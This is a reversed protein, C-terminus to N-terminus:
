ETGSCSRITEEIDHRIVYLTTIGKQDFTAVVRRTECKKQKSSHCNRMRPLVRLNHGKIQCIQLLIGHWPDFTPFEVLYQSETLGSQFSFFISFM